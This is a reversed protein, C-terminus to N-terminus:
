RQGNNKKSTGATAPHRCSRNGVSSSQTTNNMGVASAPTTANHTNGHNTFPVRIVPSQHCTKTPASCRVAIPATTCPRMRCRGHTLVGHRSSEGPVYGGRGQHHQLAAAALTGQALAACAAVSQSASRPGSHPSVAAGRRVGTLTGASKASPPCFNRRTTKGIVRTSGAEM